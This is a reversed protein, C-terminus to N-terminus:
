SEFNTSSVGAAKFSLTALLELEFAPSDDCFIVNMTENKTMRSLTISHSSTASNKLMNRCTIGWRHISILIFASSDRCGQLSEKQDFINTSNFKMEERSSITKAHNNDLKKQFWQKRAVESWQNADCLQGNWSSVDGHNRTLRQSSMRPDSLWVM